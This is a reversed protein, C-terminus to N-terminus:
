SATQADDTKKRGRQRRNYYTDRCKKSHFWHDDKKPTFEIDCEPNRCRRNQLPLPIQKTAEITARKYLEGLRHILDRFRKGDERSVFNLTFTEKTGNPHELEITDQWGKKPENM